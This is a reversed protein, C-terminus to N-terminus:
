FLRETPFIYKSNLCVKVFFVVGIDEVLERDDIRRLNLNHELRRDNSTFGYCESKNFNLVYSDCNRDNKCLEMCQLNIISPIRHVIKYLIKEAYNPPSPPRYGLIKEFHTQYDPCQILGNAFSILIFIAQLTLFNILRLNVM